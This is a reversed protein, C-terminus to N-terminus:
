EKVELVEVGAERAIRTMHATGKGGPFAVVMDPVMALMQRNRIPGASKGHREWDAPCETVPIGMERAWEGAMKDAGVWRNARRNPEPDFFHGAGGHIILNIGRSLHLSGLVETVRARDAYDRGGCVIIRIGQSM